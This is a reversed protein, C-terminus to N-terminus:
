APATLAAEGFFSSQSPENQGAEGTFPRGTLYLLPKFLLIRQIHGYTDGMFGNVPVDIHERPAFKAASEDLGQALLM